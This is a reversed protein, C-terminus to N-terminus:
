LNIFKLSYFHLIIAHSLWAENHKWRKFYFKSSVEFPYIIVLTYIRGLWALTVSKWPAKTRLWCSPFPSLWKWQPLIQDSLSIYLWWNSILHFSVYCLAYFFLTSQRTWRYGPRTAKEVKPQEFIINLMCEHKRLAESWMKNDCELYKSNLGQRQTGQVYIHKRKRKGGNIKAEALTSNKEAMSVHCSAYKYWNETKM